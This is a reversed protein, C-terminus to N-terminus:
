LKIRRAMYSGKHNGGIFVNNEAIKKGGAFVANISGQLVKGDYISKKDAVKTSKGPNFIVIDADSGVMLSGKKPYLGHIKAPNETFKPIISEKYLTYMNLFSYKVGGVGMPIESTYKKNKKEEPFPCHDTAIVDIGDINENLKQRESEARLPPTMTYRYGDEGEYVSSNFIFYHPASELIIDGHLKDSNNEKLRKVTTGCNTHVIYLLGDRYRAMEALKLVESIESIAPRAKGHDKVLVNNETILDNNEAHVVIRCGYEKSYMLLEDIIRDKTMRKTSEYTTFIKIGPMGLEASKKLLERVDGKFNGLTVHFAFDSVSRQALSKRKEFEGELQSVENIPDLFDIYSTIGGFAANVSGSYFDDESVNDGGGLSFHVHSDIFGPLVMCGEADYIESCELESATVAEIVGDKVYLNGYVFRGNEYIKGNIIGLDMVIVGRKIECFIVSKM